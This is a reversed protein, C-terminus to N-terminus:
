CVAREGLGMGRSGIKERVYVPGPGKEELSFCIFLVFM